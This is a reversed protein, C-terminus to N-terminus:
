YNLGVTRFVFSNRRVSSVSQHQSERHYGERCVKKLERKRWCLQTPLSGAVVLNLVEPGREIRKPSPTALKAKKDRRKSPPEVEPPSRQSQITASTPM